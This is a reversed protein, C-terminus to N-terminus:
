FTLADEETFERVTRIELYVHIHCNWLKQEKRKWAEIESKSAQHNEVDVMVDGDFRGYEDGYDKGFSIWNEKAFDFFENKCVAKLADEVSAYGEPANEFRTDRSTWGSSPTLSEGNEFDDETSQCDYSKVYIRENTKM